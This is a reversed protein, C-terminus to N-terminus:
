PQQRYEEYEDLSPDDWGARNMPELFRRMWEYVDQRVLVFTEQTQPDRILKPQDPQDAFSRLQDQTLEIM